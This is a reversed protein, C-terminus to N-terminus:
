VVRGWYKANPYHLLMSKWQVLFLDAIPYIIRGTGSKKNVRAISEVYVIKVGLMKGVYCLPITCGGGTSVIVRPKENFIIYLSKCTLIFFYFLEIIMVVIRSKVNYQDRVFYVRGLKELGETTVAKATVFSINHGMFSDTIALMEQLHGGEACELLINM